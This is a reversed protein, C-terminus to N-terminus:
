RPLGFIREAVLNRHIDQTGGYITCARSYFYDANWHGSCLARPAGLMALSAPGGLSMALDYLGQDTMAWHLKMLSSEEGPAAGRLYRSIYRLNTLRMMQINAYAQALRERVIPDDILLRGNRRTSKAYDVEQRWAKEFRPIEVLTYLGREYTLMRMTVNWGTGREGILSDRPVRVNDFFIEAFEERRSIQKIPRVTIGTSNMPVALMSLGKHKPAEPDTRALLTCWDAWPADSSWIKQGNIVWEDGELVAKTQVGALDSGANPESFGQCWLMQGRLIKNLFREKQEPSGIECLGPGVLNLGIKDAPMPARAAIAEMIYIAQEMLTAGRGGYEKPWALGLWGAAGLREQWQRACAVAERQELEELKDVTWEPPLNRAMWTKVEQRFAEESPSLNLDL